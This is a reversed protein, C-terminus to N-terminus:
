SHCLLASASAAIDENTLAPLSTCYCERPPIHSHNFCATKFVAIGSLTDPTRIGRGGGTNGGQTGRNEVVSRSDVAGAEVARLNWYERRSHRLCITTELRFRVRGTALAVGSIPYSEAI